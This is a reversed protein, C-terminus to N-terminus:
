KGNPAGKEGSGAMASINNLDHKEFENYQDAYVAATDIIHQETNRAFFSGNQYSKLRRIFTILPMIGVLSIIAAAPLLALTWVPNRAAIGAAAAAGFSIVTVLVARLAFAKKYKANFADDASDKLIKIAEEINEPRELM